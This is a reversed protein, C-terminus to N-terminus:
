IWAEIDEDDIEDEIPPEPEAPEPEHDAAPQAPLLTEERIPVAPAEKRTPDDHSASVPQEPEVPQETELPRAAAPVDTEATERQLPSPESASGGNLANRETPIHAQLNRVGNEVIENEILYRLSDMLNTQTNIWQMVLPDETKKTKLSFNDGPQKTKKMVIM